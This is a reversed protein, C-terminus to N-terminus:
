LGEEAIIQKMSKPGSQLARPAKEQARSMWNRLFRTFNTKKNKPNALLWTLARTSETELDIAPFARLWMDFNQKLSSAISSKALEDYEAITTINKKNKLSSSSSSSQLAQNESSPKPTPDSSPESPELRKKEQTRLGGLRGSEIQKNRWEEQEKRVEEMRKNVLFGGGNQVFKPSVNEWKGIFKKASCRVIRSMKELDNPIGGNVWQYLLLRLYIGVEENNWTATDMDFDSAYLQFAPPKNM